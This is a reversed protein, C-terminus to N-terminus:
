FNVDGGQCVFTVATAKSPDPNITIASGSPVTMPYTGAAVSVVDGSQAVKFARDFTACPRSSDGRVCTVDSGAVSLWVAAASKQTRTRVAKSDPRAHHGGLVAFAYSPAVLVALVVLILASPHRAAFVRMRAVVRGTAAM